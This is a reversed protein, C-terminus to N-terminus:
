LETLVDFSLTTAIFLELYQDRQSSDLARLPGLFVWITLKLMSSKLLLLHAIKGHMHEM